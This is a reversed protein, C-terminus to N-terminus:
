AHSDVNAVSVRSIFLDPDSGFSDAIVRIALNEAGTFYRESITIQFYGFSKDGLSNGELVDQEWIEPYPLGSSADQTSALGLLCVLLAFTVSLKSKLLHRNAATRVPLFQRL